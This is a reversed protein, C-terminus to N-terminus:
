IFFYSNAIPLWSSLLGSSVRVSKPETLLSLLSSISISSAFDMSFSTSSSVLTAFAAIPFCSIGTREVAAPFAPFFSAAWIFVWTKGSKTSIWSWALCASFSFCCFLMCFAAMSFFAAVSVFTDKSVCTISGTFTCGPISLGPFPLCSVSLGSVSKDFFVDLVAKFASLFFFISITPITAATVTATIAPIVTHPIEM